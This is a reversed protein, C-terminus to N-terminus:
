TRVRSLQYVGLMGFLSLPAWVAVSAPLMGNLGFQEFVSTAAMFVLWLGVAYGVTAAKGKRNLSLAFPATFLAIVFPLVL